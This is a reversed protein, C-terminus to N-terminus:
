IYKVNLTHIPSFFNKYINKTDYKGCEIYNSINTAM